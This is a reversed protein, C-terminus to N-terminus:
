EEVSMSGWNLLMLAKEASAHPQGPDDVIQKVAARVEAVRDHVVGGPLLGSLLTGHAKNGQEVRRLLEAFAIELKEIRTGYEDIKELGPIEAVPINELDM